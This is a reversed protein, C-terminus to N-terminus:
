RIQLATMNGGYVMKGCTPCKCQYEVSQYEGTEVKYEDKDAIFICHCWDCQFRVRRDPITGQKIIEM